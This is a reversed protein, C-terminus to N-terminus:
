FAFILRGLTKVCSEFHKLNVRNHVHFVYLRSVPVVVSCFDLISPFCRYFYFVSRVLMPFWLSWQSVSKFILCVAMRVRSGGIDSKSRVCPFQTSLSEQFVNSCMCMAYVFPLNRLSPLRGPDQLKGLARRFQYMVMKKKYIKANEVPDLQEFLGFSPSIM